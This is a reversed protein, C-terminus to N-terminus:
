QAEKLSYLIETMLMLIFGLVGLSHGWLSGATPIERTVTQILIYALTIFGIAIVSLILERSRTLM